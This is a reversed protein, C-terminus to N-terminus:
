KGEVAVMPSSLSFSGLDSVFEAEVFAASWGKAPKPVSAVYDKGTKSMDVPKWEAKRMDRIDSTAVWLVAKTLDPQAKLVIRAGKSSQTSKMEMTPLAKNTAVSRVFSSCAGAIKMLCQISKFNSGEMGLGHGANPMYLVNKQGTVKPWYVNLSDFTWYPDNAGNILLKPMTIRNIYSYPDVIGTLRKGKESELVPMLGNDTYDGIEESYGGYSMFQHRMQAPLNLNDYVMPVIGKVRKGDAAATLWTTWGRKSAGSVIFRTIKSKMGTQSFAQVADMARVAAKTMPLLLPWEYDGTELAKLFTYAILADERKGDYLPQNPIDWLVAVPCKFASALTGMVIDERGGPSGGTVILVCLDDFDRNTPIIIQLDHKWAMGEWTQSTMALNITKGLPTSNESTKEWAYSADPKNVYDILEECRAVTSLLTVLALLTVFLRTM